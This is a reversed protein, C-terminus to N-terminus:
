DHQCGEPEAPQRLLASLSKVVDGISYPRALVREFGLSRVAAAPLISASTLILVRGPAALRGLTSLAAQAHQEGELDFVVVAPQTASTRLLLEAEDWTEVATVDYGEEALQALVLARPRWEGGALLIKAHM